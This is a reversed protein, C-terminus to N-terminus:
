GRNEYTIAAKFVSAGQGIWSVMADKAGDFRARHTILKEPVLDKKGIHDLVRLFDSKQAVRSAFVTAERIHLATDSIDVTGSQLGVFVMSGAQSLYNIAASMSAKNGTSDIVINPMDGDTWSKLRQSMADGATPNLVEYGFIRKVFAAREESVDALIVEAGAIRSFEASALGIPGAGFVLVRDGRAIGGRRVAHAGIALPEILACAVPDMDKPVPILYETPVTVCECLGGDVHVGMVKLSSCCNERGLSCARCKGCSFYPFVCVKDGEKVGSGTPGPAVAAVTGCVEHGLIRPYTLLLSNGKFAHIDSGCVTVAEIKVLASGPLPDPVDVSTEVLTLPKDLVIARMKRPAM